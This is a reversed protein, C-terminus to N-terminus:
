VDCEGAEGSISDEIFESLCSEPILYNRGNRIYKLMGSRLIDYFRTRGMHLLKRAEEPTYIKQIPM